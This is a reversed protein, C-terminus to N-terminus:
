DRMEDPVLDESGSVYKAHVKRQLLRKARAGADDAKQAKKPEQKKKLVKSMIKKFASRDEGMLKPGGAKKEAAAKENPNTNGKALNRMKAKKQAKKHASTDIEFSEKVSKKKKARQRMLDKFDIEAQRVRARHQDKPDDSYSLVSAKNLKKSDKASLGENVDDDGGKHINKHRFDMAKKTKKLEKDRQQYNAEEEQYKKYKEDTGPKYHPKAGKKKQAWMIKFMDATKEKKTRSGPLGKFDGRDLARKFAAATGGKKVGKEKDPKTHGFGPPAVESITNGEPEYECNWARLSKNIRSDPDRATKASTLKSKMGKMRACFSKRRPNGVKKSPAKLDSGPNEREYSKRGKENLGGSKNKGEKKTWAAGEEVFEFDDRWNSFGESKNGYNSAGKKRCQVLRGSAYASPWVKASAKVKHYCADKKGSGKGKKDEEKIDTKVYTPKAAGSKQQQNPDAAKKRRSASDREAKTMSARKSSSVCKPTGEGPEDSACTGGTKVNVWGAKGDKSKSGKFWKHLSGEKVLEGDKRVRTGKPIPMCKQRDRCFYQGKPCAM